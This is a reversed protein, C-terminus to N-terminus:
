TVKLVKLIAMFSDLKKILKMKFEEPTQEVIQLFIQAASRDSKKKFIQFM